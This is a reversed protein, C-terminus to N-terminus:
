CWTSGSGGLLRAIPPSAVTTSQCLRSTQKLHPLRSISMNTDRAQYRSLRPKYRFPEAISCAGAVQCPYTAVAPKM